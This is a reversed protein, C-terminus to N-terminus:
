VGGQGGGPGVPVPAQRGLRGLDVAGFVEGRAQEVLVSGVRQVAGVVEGGQDAAGGLLGVVLPVLAPDVVVVGGRDEGGGQAQVGSRAGQAVLGGGPGGGQQVPRVAGGRLLPGDEGAAGAGQRTGPVGEAGRGGEVVDPRLGLVGNCLPVAVAGHGGPRAGGVQQLFQGGGGLTEHEGGPDAAQEVGEAARDRGVGVLLVQGREVVQGRAAPQDLGPQGGVGRGGAGVDGGAVERLGHGGLQARVQRAVHGVRGQGGGHLPQEAGVRPDGVAPEGEAEVLEEGAGLVEPLAVQGREAGELAAPGFQDGGLTGPQPQVVVPRAHHRREHAVAQDVLHVQREDAVVEGLLEAGGALVAAGAGPAQQQEQGRGAVALGREH